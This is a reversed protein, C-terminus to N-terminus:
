KAFYLGILPYSASFVCHGSILVIIPDITITHMLIVERDLHELTDITVRKTDLKKTSCFAVWQEVMSEASLRYMRCIQTVVADVLM